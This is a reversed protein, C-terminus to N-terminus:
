AATVAYEFRATDSDGGEDTATYAVIKTQAAGLQGSVTRTDADFALGDPLGAITYAVPDDGGDAEPLVFSVDDGVTGERAPVEAFRPVSNYGVALLTHAPAAKQLRCELETNREISLLPTDVDSLTDFREVDASTPISIWWVHRWKGGTTDLTTVTAATAMDHEVIDIEVGFSRGIRKYSEANLDPQAVLKSLLAARREALTSALASCADPLGAVREWDPLLATTASPLIDDFLAATQRDMDAFDEAMAALLADLVAGPRRPWARGTPLLARLQRRYAPPAVVDVM